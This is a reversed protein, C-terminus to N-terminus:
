DRPEEYQRRESITANRSSIIRITDERETYVVVLLNGSASLGLDIFRDEEVSHKEDFITLSNSDGFVTLAEEFTIGHKQVNVQAKDENWIFRLSM